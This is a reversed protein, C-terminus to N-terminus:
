QQQKLLMEAKQRSLLFTVFLMMLGNLLIYFHISALAEQASTVTNRNEVSVSAPVLGDWPQQCQQCTHQVPPGHHNAPELGERRLGDIQSIGTSPDTHLSPQINAQQSLASCKPINRNERQQPDCGSASSGFQFELTRAGAMISLM